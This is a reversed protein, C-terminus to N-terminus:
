SDFCSRCVYPQLYGPSPRECWAFSRSSAIVESAVGAALSNVNPYFQLAVKASSWKKHQVVGALEIGSCASLKARSCCRTRVPVTDPTVGRSVGGCFKM